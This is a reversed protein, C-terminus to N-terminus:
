REENYYIKYYKRGDDDRGQEILSRDGHIYVHFNKDLKLISKFVKSQKKVAQASIAFTDELEMDREHAYDERFSKFHPAADPGIIKMGFDELSFDDAEKFYEMSRKMLAVQELKPVDFNKPLENLIFEKCIQLNNETKSYADNRPRAQLFVDTWYRADQGRNTADTIALVYGDASESNFIICAKDLKQISTGVATDVQFRGDQRKIQLVTDKSEAKFIGIASVQKGELNAGKLNAIYLDGPKINPHNGAEFLMSAIKVSGAHFEIESNFLDAVLKYLAHYQLGSDHHFRYLQDTRFGGSFYREFVEKIEESLPLIQESLELVENKSKNGVRHLAIKDIAEFFESM